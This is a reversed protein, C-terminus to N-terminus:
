GHLLQKLSPYETHRIVLTAIGPLRPLSGLEQLVQFDEPGVALVKSAQYDKMVLAVRYALEVGLALAVAHVVHDVSATLRFSASDLPM